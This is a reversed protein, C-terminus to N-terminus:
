ASAGSPSCSSGGSRPGGGGGRGPRLGAGLAPPGLLFWGGRGVLLELGRPPLPVLRLVRQALLLAAGRLRLALGLAADGLRVAFELRDHALRPALRVQHPLGCGLRHPPCLLAELLRPLPRGVPGAGERLQLGLLPAVLEPLFTGILQFGPITGSTM